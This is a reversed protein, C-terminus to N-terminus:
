SLARPEDALKKSDTVPYPQIQNFLQLIVNTM